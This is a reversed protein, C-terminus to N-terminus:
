GGSVPPMFAVCAGPSLATDWSVFEDYVAARVQERPLSLHKLAVMEQYLAAVTPASTEVTEVATGAQARLAAFFRVQIKM